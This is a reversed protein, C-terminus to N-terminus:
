REIQRMETGAARLKQYAKKAREAEARGKYWSTQLTPFWSGLKAPNKLLYIVTGVLSGSGVGTILLEMAFPSNMSLKQVFANRETTFRKIGVNDSISIIPDEDLFRLQADDAEKLYMADDVAEVVTQVAVLLDNMEAITPTSGPRVRDIGDMGFIAPSRIGVHLLSGTRTGVDTWLDTM